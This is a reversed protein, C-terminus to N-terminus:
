IFGAVDLVQVNFDLVAPRFVLQTTQGSQRGIQNLM